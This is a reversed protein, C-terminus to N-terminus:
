PRQAYIDGSNTITGQPVHPGQELVVNTRVPFPTVDNVLVQIPQTFNLTFPFTTCIGYPADQFQGHADTYLSNGPYGPKYLDQWTDINRQDVVQGTTTDVVVYSLLKEQPRMKDSEIPQNNKNQADGQDLVQYKVAVQIGFDVPM